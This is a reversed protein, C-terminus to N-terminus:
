RVKVEVWESFVDKKLGTYKYRIKFKKARAPISLIVPNVVKPRITHDILYDDFFLQAMQGRQTPPRKYDITQGGQKFQRACWSTYYDDKAHLKIQWKRTCVVPGSYRANRYSQQYWRKGDVTYQIIVNKSATTIDALVKVSKSMKQVAVVRPRFTIVDKAIENTIVTDPWEGVKEINHYEDSEDIQTPWWDRKQANANMPVIMVLAMVLAILKKM